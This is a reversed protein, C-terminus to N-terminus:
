GAKWESSEAGSARFVATKVRARITCDLAGKDVASVKAAKVGLEALTESIARRIEAGFQKVVISKIDIEIGGDGAEITIMVDSSELTGSISPKIIDMKKRRVVRICVGIYYFLGCIARILVPQSQYGEEEGANIRKVRPSRM